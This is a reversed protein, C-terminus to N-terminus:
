SSYGNDVRLTQGTINKNHLLFMVTDAISVPDVMGPIVNSATAMEVNVGRAMDTDTLGPAVCNVNIGRAGVERALSRTFGELGAKTASYTTSGTVGRSALVSSLYIIHGHRQRMMPRVLTKTLLIPAVLNVQITNAITEPSQASLLGMGAIGASHIFADVPEKYDFKLDPASLDLPLVSHEQGDLVNPLEKLRENLLGVNTASLVVSHGEHALRQAIAWGIGRSAGTVFCKM